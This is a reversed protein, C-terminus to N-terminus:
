QRALHVELKERDEVKEKSAKHKFLNARELCRYITEYPSHFFAVHMVFRESGNKTSISHKNDFGNFLFETYPFEEDLFRLPAPDESYVFNASATRIDVHFDVEYGPPLHTFTINSSLGRGIDQNIKKLYGNLKPAEIRFVGWNNMLDLGQTPDGQYQLRTRWKNEVYDRDKAYPVMLEKIKEVPIKNWDIEYELEACQPIEHLGRHFYAEDKFHQIVTPVIPDANYLEALLYLVLATHQGDWVTYFHGDVNHVNLPNVMEDSFHKLIETVKQLNIKRQLDSNIVIKSLQIGYAKCLLMDEFAKWSHDIEFKKLTNKIIERYEPDKELSRELLEGLSLYADSKKSDSLYTPRPYFDHPSYNKSM